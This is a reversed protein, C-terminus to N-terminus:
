CRLSLPYCCTKTCWCCFNVKPCKPCSCQCRCSCDGYSPCQPFCCKCSCSIEDFCLSRPWCCCQCKRVSCCSPMSCCKPISCCSCSHCNCFNCFCCCPMKLPSCGFCCIWSLNFCPAKSLWKWFRCSTHVKQNTAPIFPDANAVMFDAIEKSTKSAPQLSEVFKLEGELYSIERELMQVRALERRRGYLDPFEPPSKPRPPPLSPALSSDRSGEM